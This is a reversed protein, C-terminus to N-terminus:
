NNLFYIGHTLTGGQFASDVEAGYEGGFREQKTTHGCDTHKYIGILQSCNGALTNIKSIQWKMEDSRFYMKM